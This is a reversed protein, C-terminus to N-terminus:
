DEEGLGDGYVDMIRRVEEVGCAEEAEGDPLTYCGASGGVALMAASLALAPKLRHFWPAAFEVAQFAAWSKFRGALSPDIFKWALRFVDNGLRLVKRVSLGLKRALEERHVWILDHFLSAFMSALETNRLLDPGNWLKSARCFKHAVFRVRKDDIRIIELASDDTLVAMGVCLRACRKAVRKSKVTLSVDAGLPYAAAQDRRIYDATEEVAKRIIGAIKAVSEIKEPTM